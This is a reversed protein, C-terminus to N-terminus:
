SFLFITFLRLLFVYKYNFILNTVTVEFHRQIDESTLHLFHQCAGPNCFCGTRLQINYLSAFHLVESYGIYEGNDRVLNFNVIPGQISSDEFSSPHYLIVAPRGNFHHLCALNRYVYKALSFTHKSIITSNLHLRKLTNFGERLSLISLFPLSGDEFRFVIKYNSSFWM